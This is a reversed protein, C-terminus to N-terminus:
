DSLSLFMLTFFNMFIDNASDFFSTFGWKEFLIDVGGLLFPGSHPKTQVSSFDDDSVPLPPSSDSGKSSNTPKKKKKKGMSMMIAFFRPQCIRRTEAFDDDVRM